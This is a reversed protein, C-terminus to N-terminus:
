GLQLAIGGIFCYREGARQLFHQIEAAAAFLANM